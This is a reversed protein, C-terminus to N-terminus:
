GSKGAGLLAIVGIAVSLMGLGAALFGKWGMFILGDHTDGVIDTLYAYNNVLIGLVILVIGLSRNKM